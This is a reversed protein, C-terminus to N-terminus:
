SKINEAVGEVFQKREATSTFGMGFYLVLFNQSIRWKYVTEMRVCFLELLPFYSICGCQKSYSDYSFSLLLPFVVTQNYILFVDIPPHHLNFTNWQRATTRHVIWTLMYTINVETKLTMQLTLHWTPTHCPMKYIIGCGSEPLSVSSLKSFTFTRFIRNRHFSYTQVIHYYSASRPFGNFISSM